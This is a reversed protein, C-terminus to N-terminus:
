ATPNPAVCVPPPPTPAYAPYPPPVEVPPYSRVPLPPPLPNEIIVRHDNLRAHRLLGEIQDLLQLSDFEQFMSELEMKLEPTLEEVHTTRHYFDGVRRSLRKLSALGMYNALSRERPQYLWLFIGVLLQLSTVSSQWYTRSPFEGFIFIFQGGTLGLELIYLINTTWSQAVAWFRRWRQQQTIKNLLYRSKTRLYEM